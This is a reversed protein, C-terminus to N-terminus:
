AEKAFELINSFAIEVASSLEAFDKEGAHNAYHEAMIGSKHGTALQVKRLEIKDALHKAYYHRWSHFCIGRQTFAKSIEKRKEVDSREEESLTM